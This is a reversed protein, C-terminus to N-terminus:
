EVHECAHDRVTGVHRLRPTATHEALQPRAVDVAVAEEGLQCTRLVRAPQHYLLVHDGLRRLVGRVRLSRLDTIAGPEGLVRTKLLSRADLGPRARAAPSGRQRPARCALG